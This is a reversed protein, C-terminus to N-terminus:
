RLNSNPWSGILAEEVKGSPATANVPEGFDSYSIDEMGARAADQRLLYPTGTAAAYWTVSASSTEITVPVAQQGDDLFPLFSNCCLM